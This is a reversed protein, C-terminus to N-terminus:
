GISDSTGVPEISTLESRAARAVSGTFLPALAYDAAAQRSLATRLDLRLRPYRPHPRVTQFGVAVFFDAPVICGGPTGRADGFAEIAAVGRRALDQAADQVLVRGLGAGAYRPAVRATTLVVADPSAPATPFTFTRPLYSPPAYIAYGALTGDVYALKGCPGWELLTQSLWAEKELAPDAAAEGPGPRPDLEWFVCERCPYPLDALTDLTLDVLRRVNWGWRM